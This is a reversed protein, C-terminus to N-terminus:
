SIVTISSLKSYYSSSDMEDLQILQFFLLMMPCLLLGGIECADDPSSRSAKMRHCVYIMHFYSIAHFLIKCFFMYYLTVYYSVFGFRIYIYIFIMYTISSIYYVTFYFVTCVYMPLNRAHAFSLWPRAMNPDLLITSGVMGFFDAM